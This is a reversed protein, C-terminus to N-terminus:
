DRDEVLVIVAAYAVYGRPTFRVQQRGTVGLFAENMTPQGLEDCPVAGSGTAAGGDILLWGAGACALVIRNGGTADFEIMADEGWADPGLRGVERFGDGAGVSDLGLEGVRLVFYWTARATALEPGALAAEARLLWFGDAPAPVTGSATGAGADLRTWGGAPEGLGAEVADYGAASVAVSQLSWGDATRLTLPSGPETFLAAPLRAPPPILYPCDEFVDVGDERTGTPTCPAAGSRREAGAVLELGPPSAFSPPPTQMPGPRHEPSAPGCTWTIDGDLVLAAPDGGLPAGMESRPATLHNAAIEAIAPVLGSFAMRGSTGDDAVAAETLTTGRATYSARRGERVLSLHPEAPLADRLGIRATVTEGFLDIGGTDTDVHSVGNPAFSSWTCIARREVSLGHSSIRLTVAGESENEALAVGRTAVSTPTGASPTGAAPGSPTSTAGTLLLAPRALIVGTLAVILIAAAAATVLRWDGLRLGSRRHLRRRVEPGTVTVDLTEAEQRLVARLRDELVQDDM